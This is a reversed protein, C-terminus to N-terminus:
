VVVDNTLEVSGDIEIRQIPTGNRIIVGLSEARRILWESLNQDDM